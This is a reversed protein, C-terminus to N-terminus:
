APDGEVPVPLGDLLRPAENRRAFETVEVIVPAAEELRGRRVMGRAALALTLVRDTLDGIRGYGEAADQYASPDGTLTGELTAMAASVWPTYRPSRKLMTRVRAAGEVGLLAGAYALPAVFEALPLIGTGSWDEEVADMLAVARDMRDQLTRCLAAHALTYLLVRHFGGRRAAAVARDIAEDDVPEDRLVQLWGRQPVLHLEWEATPRRMSAAAADM